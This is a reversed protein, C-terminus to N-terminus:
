VLVDVECCSSMFPNAVQLSQCGLIFIIAENMTNTRLCSGGFATMFIEWVFIEWGSSGGFSGDLAGLAGGGFSGGFSGEFSGSFSGHM